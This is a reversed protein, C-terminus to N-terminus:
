TALRDVLDTLWGAARRAADPDVVAALGDGGRAYARELVAPWAHPAPWDDHVDAVDLDHLRAAKRLQEDFPRPEPVCVFPRAATAVEMVTNHGASGVVVDAAVLHPLPDEVWGTSEVGPPTGRDDGVARWRYDPTAEAAAALQAETPGHGGRGRLLVVLREHESWGHRRRVQARTGPSPVAPRGLGGVHVTRRRVAPPVDPEELEPGFPALLGVAGEYAALHAPDWRAGHQRVIVTPVGMLRALQAVESSVDVVLVAPDVEALVHTIAATRERLGPVGVPAYHLQPPLPVGVPDHGDGDDRPLRVVRAAGFLDPVADDVSTLVTTPLDLADVLARARTVHGRGQHHVYVAVHRRM